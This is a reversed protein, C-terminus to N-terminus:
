TFGISSKPRHTFALNLADADDPSRGIRKKTDSKAEVVRRGRDDLRYVPAIM